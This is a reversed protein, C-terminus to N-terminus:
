FRYHMSAWLGEADWDRSNHLLAQFRLRWRDSFDYNWLAELRMAPNDESDIGFGLKLDYYHQDTGCFLLRSLDHNWEFTIAASSYDQPTWYPHIIDAVTDGVLIIEDNHKTDSLEGSLTLKLIRPHDTFAYGAGLDFENSNNEDSYEAHELRANGELRRTIFSHAFLGTRDAQIGQAIGFLNYLEDSRRYDFGIDFYDRANLVLQAIGTDTNDFDDDDYSKHNWEVRGRLYENVVGKAGLSFGDAPISTDMSTPREEYRDYSLTVRLRESLPLEAGFQNKLRTISSIDGRGDEHWYSFEDYLALHSNIRNHELALPARNHLPEIILLKTYAAEACDGLGLACYVQAYDFWAEQNGPSFLLLEKYRDLAQSFRLNLKTRKAQQELYASKQIRYSSHLNALLLQFREQLHAPLPTLYQDKQASVDEYGRYISDGSYQDSYRAILESFVPDGAERELDRLGNDLVQDVRQNFLKEYAEYSEADRKAWSAVRAYERRPLPDRLNLALISEYLEMAEDYRDAWSLNRAQGILISRNCPFIEKLESFHEEAEEDQHANAEALARKLQAPFFASDLAIAANFIQIAEDNM